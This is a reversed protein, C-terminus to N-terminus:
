SIRADCSLFVALGPMGGRFAGRHDSFLVNQAGTRICQIARFSLYFGHGYCIAVRAILLFNERRLLFSLATGPFEPIQKYFEDQTIIIQQLVTKQVWVQGGCSPKTKKESRLGSPEPSHLKFFGEDPCLIRDRYSDPDSLHFL